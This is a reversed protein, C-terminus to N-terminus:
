FPEFGGSPLQGSAQVSLEQSIAADIQSNTFGGPTVTAANNFLQSPDVVTSGGYDVNEVFRNTGNNYIQNFVAQDSPTQPVSGMNTSTFVRTRVYRLYHFSATVKLLDSSEYSVPIPM